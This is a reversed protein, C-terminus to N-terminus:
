PAVLRNDELISVVLRRLSKQPNQYNLILQVATQKNQPRLLGRDSVSTLVVLVDEILQSVIPQYEPLGVKFKNLENLRWMIKFCMLHLEQYEEDDFFCHCFECVYPM